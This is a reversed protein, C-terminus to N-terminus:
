QRDVIISDEAVITGPQLPVGENVVYPAPSGEKTLAVIGIVKAGGKGALAGGPGVIKGAASSEEKFHIAKYIEVRIKKYNTKWYNGPAGHKACLQSLFAEKDPLQEWVQPLYTSSGYPTYLIVGDEFPILKNLLDEATTFTLEKPETLISIELTIDRLEDYSVPFFRDDHVAAVITRDIINEYLPKEFEFLGVCGRLNGKKMLTVFCPRKEKLNGSLTATDPQPLKHYKLYWVLTERALALMYKKEATSYKEQSFAHPTVFLSSVSLSLLMFCRLIVQRSVALSQGRTKLKKFVKIANCLLLTVSLVVDSVRWLRILPIRPWM